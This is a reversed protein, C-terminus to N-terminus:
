PLEGSCIPLAEADEQGNGGGESMKVPLVHNWGLVRKRLGGEMLM